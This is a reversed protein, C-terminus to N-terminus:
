WDESMKSFDSFANQKQVCSKAYTTARKKGQWPEVQVPPQWRLEGVPPQAFPVGLFRWGKTTAAGILSGDALSLEPAQGVGVALVVSRLLLCGVLAYRRQSM